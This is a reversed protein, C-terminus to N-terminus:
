RETRTQCQKGEYGGPKRCGMGQEYWRRQGGSGNGTGRTIRGDLVNSTSDGGYGTTLRRRPATGTGGHLRGGLASRRLTARRSRMAAYLRGDLPADSLRGDLACRFNNASFADSTARRSHMPFGGASPADYRFDGDTSSADYLRGDLTCRQQDGSNHLM